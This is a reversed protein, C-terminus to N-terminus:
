TPCAETVAVPSGPAAAGSLGVADIVLCSDAAVDPCPVCALSLDGFFSCAQTVDGEAWLDALGQVGVFVSVAGDAIASADPTLGVTFRVARVDFTVEGITLSAPATPGVLYGRDLHAGVDLTRSCLDQAGTDDAIGIRATDADVLGVFLRTSVDPVLSLLGSFAAPRLFTAAALDVVFSTTTVDVGGNLPAGASSTTFPLTEDGNCTSLGLSVESSADLPTEPWFGLIFGDRTYTDGSTFTAEPDDYSLRLEVPGGGFLDGSTPYVVEHTLACTETDDVVAPGCGALMLLFLKM